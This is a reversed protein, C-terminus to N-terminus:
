VLHLLRATAILHTRTPADLLERVRTVDRRITKVSVNLRAALEEDTSGDTMGRLVRLRRSAPRTWATASVASECDTRVVVGELDHHLVGLRGDDIAIGRVDSTPHVVMPVQQERLWRQLEANERASVYLRCWVSAVPFGKLQAYEVITRVAQSSGLLPRAHFVTVNREAMTVAAETLLTFSDVSVALHQTVSQLVAHQIVHTVPEAGLLSPLRVDSVDDRLGLLVLRGLALLPSTPRVTGVTDRSDDILRHFRLFALAKEVDEARHDVSMPITTTPVRREDRIYRYVDGVVPSAFTM